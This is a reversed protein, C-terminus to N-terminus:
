HCFNAKTPPVSLRYNQNLITSFHYLYLFVLSLRSFTPQTSLSFLIIENGENKERKEREKVNSLITVM